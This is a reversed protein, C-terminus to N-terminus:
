TYGTREKLPLMIESLNLLEMQTVKTKLISLYSNGKNMSIWKQIVYKRQIVLLFYIHYLFVNQDQM